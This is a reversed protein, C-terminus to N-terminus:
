ITSIETAANPHFMSRFEKTSKVGPIPELVMVRKILLGVLCSGEKLYKKKPLCM